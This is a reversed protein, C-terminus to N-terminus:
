PANVPAGGREKALLAVVAAMNGGSSDGAVALKSSDFDFTGANEAIYRTVAYAEEIAVPYRVEPSRQYDALVVAAGAGIAIKRAFRDHTEKDGVVWGGGHFYVVAPLIKPGSKPRVIRIGGQGKPGCPLALDETKAALIPIPIEGAQAASVMRRAATVSLTHMDPGNKITNLFIKTEPGLGQDSKDM